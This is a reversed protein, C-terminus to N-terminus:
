LRLDPYLFYLTKFGRKRKGIMKFRKETFDIFEDAIYKNDSFRVKVAYINKYKYLKDDIITCKLKDRFEQWKGTGVWDICADIKNHLLDKACTKSSKYTKKIYFIKIELFFNENKYNELVEKFSEYADEVVGINLRKKKIDEINYRKKAVIALKKLKLLAYSTYFVEPHSYIESLNETIFLDAKKQTIIKKLLVEFPAKLIKVSRSPYYEQYEKKINELIRDNKIDTYIWLVTDSFLLSAMFILFVIKKM